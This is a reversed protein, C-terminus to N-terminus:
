LFSLLHSIAQAPEQLVVVVPFRRLPMPLARAIPNESVVPDNLMM